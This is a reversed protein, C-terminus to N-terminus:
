VGMRCLQRKLLGANEAGSYVKGRPKDILSKNKFDAILDEDGSYLLRAGATRALALVHPDNSQLEKNNALATEEALFSERGVRFAKGERRYIAFKQKAKESIERAFRGGTSYVIVGKGTEVWRRLPLSEADNPELFRGLRNADIIVCM